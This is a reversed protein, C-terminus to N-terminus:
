HASRFQHPEEFTAGHAAFAGAARCQDPGLAYCNVGLAVHEYGVGASVTDDFVIAFTFVYTRDAAFPGAVALQFGWGPNHAGISLSIDPNSIRTIIAKLLEAALAFVHRLEAGFAFARALEFCRGSKRGAAFAIHPRHVTCVVRQLLKTLDAGHFACMVAFRDVVRSSCVRRRRRTATM